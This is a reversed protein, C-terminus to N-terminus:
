KDSLFAIIHHEINKIKGDKYYTKLINKSKNLIFKLRDNLLDYGRQNNDGFNAESNLVTGRLNGFFYVVSQGSEFMCSFISLTGENKNADRYQMTKVRKNQPLYNNVNINKETIKPPTSKLDVEYVVLNRPNAAELSIEFVTM